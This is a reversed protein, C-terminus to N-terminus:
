VRLWGSAFALAILIAVPLLGDLRDFAGGHGPLLSGSDKVGAKRKLWSEFLDGLQAVVAMPAGLLMLWDQGIGRGILFGVVAAGAVGGALGAWTKGPSIAPALRPGGIARGAFYAFIDTAWTVALLWLLIGEGGGLSRLWVLSLAALCIYLACAAFGIPKGPSILGRLEMLMVITAALVLLTFAWGGLWLAVLAVAILGAGVLSRTCLDSGIKSAGTM